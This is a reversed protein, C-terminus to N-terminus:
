RRKSSRREVPAEPLEPDAEDVKPEEITLEGLVTVPSAVQPTDGVMKSPNTEVPDFASIAVIEIDPIGVADKGLKYQINFAYLKPIYFHGTAAKTVGVMATGEAFAEWQGDKDKTSNFKDITVTRKDVWIIQELTNLKKGARAVATPLAEKPGYPIPNGKPSIAKILM